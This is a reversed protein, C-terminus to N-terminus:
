NNKPWNYIYYKRGNAKLFLGRRDDRLKKAGFKTELVVGKGVTASKMYRIYPKMIKGFSPVNLIEGSVAASMDLPPNGTFYDKIKKNRNNMLYGVWMMDNRKQAMDYLRKQLPLLIITLSVTPVSPLSLSTLMSFSMKASPVYSFPTNVAKLLAGIALLSLATKSSSVETIIETRALSLSGSPSGSVTVFM